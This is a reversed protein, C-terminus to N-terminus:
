KQEPPLDPYKTRLFDLAERVQDDRLGPIIGYLKNRPDSMPNEADLMSVNNVGLIKCIRELTEYKPRATGTLFSSITNIGLGAEVALNAPRWGHFHILATLNRRRREWIEDSDKDLNTM